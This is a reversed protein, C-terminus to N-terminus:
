KTVYLYVLGFILVIYFWNSEPLEAKINLQHGLSSNLGDTIQNSLSYLNQKYYLAKFPVSSVSAMYGIYVDVPAEIPFAHQLLLSAGRPTLFYMQTGGFNRNDIYLWDNNYSDSGSMRLHLYMVTAFDVSSDSRPIKSNAVLLNEKLNSINVDDEAVFSARNTDVIQKWCKIHSMFCAIANKSSLHIRDSALQKEVHYKTFISVKPNNTLDLTSGDVADVPRVDSFVSQFLPVHKDCRVPNNRKLCIVYLPDTIM